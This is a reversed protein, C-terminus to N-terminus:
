RAQVPDIGLSSALIKAREIQQGEVVKQLFPATGSASAAEALAWPSSVVIALTGALTFASLSPM